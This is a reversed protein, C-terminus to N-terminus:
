HRRLGVDGLGHERIRALLTNRSMGLLRAAHTRNGECQELARVLYRREIEALDTRFRQPDSVAGGDGTPEGRLLAATIVDGDALLVAREMTNRLERINGPWSHRHLWEIADAALVPVGARGAIRAARACFQAALPEIESPRDRLPPISVVVGNLRYFLDQRFRGAGIEAELDRNTASVFRVDVPYPRNGGVRRVSGDELARLLKSQTALPLEGIEDLFLTGGSAAELMGTQASAAGTYAGREHGFLENEVLGQPLAACNLRLMPGDRRPSFRHLADALVEKGTGTEGVLLVAIDGQAVRELLRLLQRMRPDRVLLDPVDETDTEAPPPPRRRDRQVLVMTQALEIVEGPVVAIREGPELRRGHVRTGNSGGLDELEITAGVHLAAHRRSIWAERVVVDVDPSRGVVVTGAAPLPHKVITSGVGSGVVLLCLERDADPEPVPETVESPPRQPDSM